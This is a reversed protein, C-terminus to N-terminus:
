EDEKKGLYSLNFWKGRDDLETFGAAKGDSFNYFTNTYKQNKVAYFPNHNVGLKSLMQNALECNEKADNFNDVKDLEIWVRKESMKNEM